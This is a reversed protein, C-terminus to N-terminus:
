FSPWMSCKGNIDRGTISGDSNYFQFNIHLTEGEGFILNAVFRLSDWFFSLYKKKIMPSFSLIISLFFLFIKFIRCSFKDKGTEM